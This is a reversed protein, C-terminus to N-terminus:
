RGRMKRLWNGMREGSVYVICEKTVVLELCPIIGRRALAYSPAATATRPQFGLKSHWPAPHTGNDAINLEVQQM